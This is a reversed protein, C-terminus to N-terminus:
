RCAAVGVHVVQGRVRAARVRRRDPARVPAAGGEGVGAEHLEMRGAQRHAAVMLRLEGQHGLRQAVVPAYPDGSLRAVSAPGLVDRFFLAVVVELTEIRAVAVQRRAVDGRARGPCHAVLAAADRGASAGHEKIEAVGEGADTGAREPIAVAVEELHVLPEGAVIRQARREPDIGGRVVRHSAEPDVVVQHRGDRAQERRALRVERIVARVPEARAGQHLRQGVPVEDHRRRDSVVERSGPERGDRPRGALHAVRHRAGLSADARQQSGGARPRCRRKMALEAVEQPVVAAEGPVLVAKDRRQRLYVLEASAEPVADADGAAPGREVLLQLTRTSHGVKELQGPQHADVGDSAVLGGTAVQALLVLGRISLGPAVVRVEGVDGGPDVRGPALWRSPEDLREVELGRRRLDSSGIFM